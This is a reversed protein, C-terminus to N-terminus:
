HYGVFGARSQFDLGPRSTIRWRDAEQSKAAPDQTPTMSLQGVPGVSEAYVKAKAAPPDVPEASASVLGGSLGAIGLGLLAVLATSKLQLM